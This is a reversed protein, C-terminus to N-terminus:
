TCAGGNMASGNFDWCWTIAGRGYQTRNKDAYTTVGNDTGNSVNVDSTAIAGAFTPKTKTQLNQDLLNNLTGKGVLVVSNSDKSFTNTDKKALYNTDGQAVTLYNGKPQYNSDAQAVSILNTSKGWYRADFGANDDLTLASFNRTALDLLSSGIKSVAGWAYQGTKNVDAKALYNNDGQTVTLYNDKTQYNNDAQTITIWLANLIKSADVSLINGDAWPLSIGVQSYTTGHPNGNTTSHSYASDWNTGKTSNVAVSVSGTNANVDINSGAVISSVGASGTGSAHFGAISQCIGASTYVSNADGSCKVTPNFGATAITSYSNFDTGLLWPAAAIALYSISSFANADGLQFYNTVGAGTSYFPLGTWATTGDGIKIRGTDIVYSPEGQALIPNTSTWNANTDKRLQIQSAASVMEAVILFSMVLLFAKSTEM